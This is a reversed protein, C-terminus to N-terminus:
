LSDYGDHDQFTPGSTISTDLHHDAAADEGLFDDLDDEEATKSLLSHDTVNTFLSGFGGAPQQPRTRGKGDGRGAPLVKTIDDNELDDKDQISNATDVVYETDSDIEEAFKSVMPNMGSSDDDSSLLFFFM